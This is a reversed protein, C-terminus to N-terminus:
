GREGRQVNFKEALAAQGAPTVVGAHPQCTDCLSDDIPTTLAGPRTTNISKGSKDEILPEVDSRFIPNDCNTCFGSVPKGDRTANLGFFASHKAVHKWYEDATGTALIHRQQGRPSGAAGEREARQRGEKPAEPVAGGLRAADVSHEAEPDKELGQATLHPDGPKLGEFKTARRHRAVREGVTDASSAAREEAETPESMFKQIAAREREDQDTRLIDAM